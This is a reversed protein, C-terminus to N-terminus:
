CHGNGSVIPTYETPCHMPQPPVESTGAESHVGVGGRTMGCYDYPGTEPQFAVVLIGLLSLLCLLLLPWILYGSHDYLYNGLKNSMRVRNGGANADGEM